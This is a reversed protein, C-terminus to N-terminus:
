RNSVQQRLYNITQSPPYREDREQVQARGHLAVDVGLVVQAADVSRGAHGLM